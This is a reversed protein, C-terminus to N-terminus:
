LTEAAGCWVPGHCLVIHTHTHTQARACCLLCCVCIFLKVCSTINWGFLVCAALHISDVRSGHIVRSLPSHASHTCPHIYSWVKMTSHSSIMCQNFIKRTLHLSFAQRSTFISVFQHSVGVYCNWWYHLQSHTILQCVSASECVFSICLLLCPSCM